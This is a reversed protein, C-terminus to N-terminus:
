DAAKSAAALAQGVRAAEGSNYIDEEYCWQGDGAYCLIAVANFVYRAGGDPAPRWNPAYVVCLDNDIVHWGDDMRLDTPKGQTVTTVWDRIGQRGRFVGFDHEVYLADETFIDAWANWDGSVAAANALTFYRQLAAEVEQRPFSRKRRVAGAM